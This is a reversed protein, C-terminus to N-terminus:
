DGREKHETLMGEIGAELSEVLDDLGEDFKAVAALARQVKPTGAEQSKQEIEAILDQYYQIQDRTAMSVLRMHEEYARQNKSFPTNGMTWKSFEQWDISSNIPAPLATLGPPWHGFGARTATSGQGLLRFAVEALSTQEQAQCLFVVFHYLRFKDPFLYECCTHFLDLIYNSREHLRRAELRGELDLAFEFDLMSNPLPEDLSATDIINTYRARAMKIFKTIQFSARPNPAYRLRHVFHRPGILNDLKYTLEHDQDNVCLSMTELVKCVEIVSLFNGNDRDGVTSCYVGPRVRLTASEHVLHDLVLRTKVDNVYQQAINGQVVARLIPSNIQYLLSQFGASLWADNFQQQTGEKYKRVLLDVLKRSSPDHIAEIIENLGDKRKTLHRSEFPEQLVQKSPPEWRPDDASVPMINSVSLANQLLMDLESPPLEWQEATAVVDQRSPILSLKGNPLDSDPYRQVQIVNGLM